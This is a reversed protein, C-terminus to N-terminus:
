LVELEKLSNLSEIVSLEKTLKFNLFFIKISTMFFKDM